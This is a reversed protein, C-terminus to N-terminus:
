ILWVEDNKLDKELLAKKNKPVKARPHFLKLGMPNETYGMGVFKILHCQIDKAKLKLVIRHVFVKTM